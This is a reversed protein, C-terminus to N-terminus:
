MLLSPHRMGLAFCCNVRLNHEYGQLGANDVEVAGSVRLVELPIPDLLEDGDLSPTISMSHTNM